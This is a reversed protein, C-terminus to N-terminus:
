YFLNPCDPSTSSVRHIRWHLNEKLYPEVADIDLSGVENIRELLASTLPVSGTVM